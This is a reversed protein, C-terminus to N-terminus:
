QARGRLDADSFRLDRDLVLEMTTGAPLVVDPGRSGLVGALGAAAGAAAGIGAGMGYHGSAAGAITGVGAGAATTRGVTRADGGKNGEGEIKGESRDLNGRTDVAGPLSRLDRVTGNALTLSDFQLRLESKGKVRGAQHSDIVTGTVYSGIPAVLRGNVFVPVATQLYLHDGASTHKTNVSNTLRLLVRTGAAVVFESDSPFEAVRSPGLVLPQVTAVRVPPQSQTAASYTPNEYVLVSESESGLRVVTRTITLTNGDRSRRWREMITYNRSGSVLTNVLLAAGEWKTVTNTTSDGVQRKEEKGNLPYISTTTPTGGEQSSGLCTLAAANQDVKLFTDPPAPLDRIESRAPNLKWLGSFGEDSQAASARLLFIIAIVCYQRVITLM